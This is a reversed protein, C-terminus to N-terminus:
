YAGTRRVLVRVTRLILSLDFLFSRRDFYMMDLEARERFTTNSRGSVQWLGTLGPTLQKYKAYNDKGYAGIERELLPRPGVLKMDGAVINILQPLEDLSTRRLFKGAKTVRPDDKLKFNSEVYKKWNPHGEAQWRKLLAEADLFMTRFKICSFPRGMLGVREQCFFIPGRDELKIAVSIAVFLPSFAILSTLAALRDFSNRLM